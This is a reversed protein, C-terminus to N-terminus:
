KERPCKITIYYDKSKKTKVVLNNEIYLNSAFQYNKENAEQEYNLLIDMQIFNNDDETKTKFIAYELDSKVQVHYSFTNADLLQKREVEEKVEINIYSCVFTLTMLFLILKPNNLM